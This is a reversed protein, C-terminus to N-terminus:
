LDADPFSVFGLAVDRNWDSPFSSTRSVPRRKFVQNRVVRLILRDTSATQKQKVVAVASAWSGARVMWTKPAKASLWGWPMM